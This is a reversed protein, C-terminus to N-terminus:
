SAEIRIFLSRRRKNPLIAPDFVVEIRRTFLNSGYAAYVFHGKGTMIEGQQSYLSSMLEREDVIDISIFIFSNLNITRPLEASERAAHALVGIPGVKMTM